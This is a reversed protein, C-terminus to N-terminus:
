IIDSAACRNQAVGLVRRDFLDIPSDTNAQLAYWDVLISEASCLPYSLVREPCPQKLLISSGNLKWTMDTESSVVDPTLARIDADSGAQALGPVAVWQSSLPLVPLM